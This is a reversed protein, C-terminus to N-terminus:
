IHNNKSNAHLNEEKRTTDVIKRVELFSIIKIYKLALIEKKGNKVFEQMSQIIEVVTQANASKRVNTRPITLIKREMDGVNWKATVNKKMISM